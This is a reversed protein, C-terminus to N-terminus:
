LLMSYIAKFTVEELANLLRLCNAFPVKRYWLKDCCDLNLQLGFSNFAPPRFKSSAHEADQTTTPQEARGQVPSRGIVSKKISAKELFLINPAKSSESEQHKTSSTYMSFRGLSVKKVMNGKFIAKTIQEFIGASYTDAIGLTKFQELLINDM